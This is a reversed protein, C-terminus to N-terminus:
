RLFGVQNGDERIEFAVGQFASLVAVGMYVDFPADDVTEGNGLKYSRSLEGIRNVKQLPDPKAKFELHSRPVSFESPVSFGIREIEFIVARVPSRCYTRLLHDKMLLHSCGTDVHAKIRTFRSETGDDFSFKIRCKIAFKGGICKTFVYSSRDTNPLLSNLSLFSPPGGTGAWYTHHYDNTAQDTDYHFSVTGFQSGPGIDSKPGLGLVGDRWDDGRRSNGLIYSLQGINTTLTSWHGEVGSGDAHWCGDIESENENESTLGNMAYLWSTGSGTDPLVSVVNVCDDGTKVSIKATFVMCGGSLPVIENSNNDM